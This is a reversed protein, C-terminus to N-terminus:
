FPNSCGLAALFTDAEHRRKEASRVDGAQELAAALDIRLCASDYAFGLEDERTIAASLQRVADDSRGESLAIVGDAVLLSIGRRGAHSGAACRTVSRTTEALLELEGAAALTRLVADVGFM